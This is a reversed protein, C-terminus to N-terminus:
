DPAGADAGVGRPPAGDPAVGAAAPSVVVGENDSRPPLTHPPLGTVKHTVASDGYSVLTTVKNETETVASDGFDWNLTYETAHGRRGRTKIIIVGFAVLRAISRKVARVDMNTREALTEQSPWACGRASNFWSIIFYAVFVDARSLRRDGHIKDQLRFKQQSPTADGNVLASHNRINTM